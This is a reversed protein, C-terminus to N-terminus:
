FYSTFQINAIHLFNALPDRIMFTKYKYYINTQVEPQQKKKKKKM